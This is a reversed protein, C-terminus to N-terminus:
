IVFIEGMNDLKNKLAEQEQLGESLIKDGDLQYPADAVIYKSRKRGVVEKALALAYDEIWPFYQSREDIDNLVRPRVLLEVLTQGKFGHIYLINDIFKWSQSKLYYYENYLMKYAMYSAYRDTFDSNYIIINQGGFAFDEASILVSDSTDWINTVAIPSHLSLDVVDTNAVVYRKGSYYPAITDLAKAEIVNYDETSLEINVKNNGTGGLMTEIQKKLKDSVM